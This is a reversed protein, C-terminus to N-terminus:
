ISQQHLKTIGGGGGGRLGKVCWSELVHWVCQIPLLVVQQNSQSWSKKKWILSIHKSFDESKRTAGKQLRRLRKGGKPWGGFSTATYILVQTQRAGILDSDTGPASTRAWKLHEGMCSKPFISASRLSKSNSLPRVCHLLWKNLSKGKTFFFFFAKQLFLQFNIVMQHWSNYQSCM